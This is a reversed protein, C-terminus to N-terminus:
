STTHCEPSVTYEVGATSMCGFEPVSRAVVKLPLPDPREDNFALLMELPVMLSALSGAVILELMVPLEADHVPLETVAVVAVV